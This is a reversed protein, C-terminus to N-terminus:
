RLHSWVWGLYSQESDMPCACVLAVAILAAPVVLSWVLVGRTGLPRRTRVFALGSQWAASALVVPLLFFVPYLAGGLGMPVQFLRWSIWVFVVLWFVIAWLTNIATAVAIWPRIRRVLDM